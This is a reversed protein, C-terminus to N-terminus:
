FLSSISINQYKNFLKNILVQKSDGEQEQKLVQTVNVPRKVVRVGPSHLLLQLTRLM